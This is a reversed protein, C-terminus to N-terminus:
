CSEFAQPAFRMETLTGREGVAALTDSLPSWALGTVREANGARAIMADCTALGGVLISGNDYGGAVFPRRPHAAVQTVLSDFVYGFELPATGTPGGDAFRWCTITDAGACALYEGDPTWSLSRIKSPYGSMKLSDGRPMRWAHLEKDQTATAIHRGDPSWAMLTHSGHWRLDLDKRGDALKWVSVGDYHAVALRRRDADFALGTPTSRQPGLDLREEGAADLLKVSRGAAVAIADEGGVALQEIWGQGANFFEWPEADANLRMIRGSDTGILLDDEAVPAMCLPSCKLRVAGDSGGSADRFRIAGRAAGAYLHRGSNTFTVFVGHSGLAEQTVSVWPSLTNAGCDEARNLAAVHM